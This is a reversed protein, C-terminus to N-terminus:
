ASGKEAQVYRNLADAIEGGSLVRADLCWVPVLTQRMLDERRFQALEYLRLGVKRNWGHESMCRAFAEGLPLRGLPDAGCLMCVIGDCAMRHGNGHPELRQNVTLVNPGAHNCEAPSIIPQDLWALKRWVVQFGTDNM